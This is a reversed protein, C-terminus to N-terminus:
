HICYTVSKLNKLQRRLFVGKVDDNDTVFINHCRIPDDTVFNAPSFARWPSDRWSSGQGIPSLKNNGMPAPIKTPICVCIGGRLYVKEVCGEAQGIVVQFTFSKKGWKLTSIRNEKKLLTKWLISLFADLTTPISLSQLTPNIALPKLFPTVSIQANKEFFNQSKSVRKTM